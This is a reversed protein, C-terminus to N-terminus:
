PHWTRGARSLVQQRLAEMSEGMLRRMFVRYARLALEGLVPVPLTLDETWNFLTGRDVPELRWEGVGAVFGTHALRMMTPPQWAVVEMRESFLPVNLVRTRVSLTTGLGDRASSVVSVRAADRMWNPQGEWDVLCAWTDEITAPLVIHGEVRV